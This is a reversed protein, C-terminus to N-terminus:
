PRAKRRSCAPRPRASGSRRPSRPPGASSRACATCAATWPRRPRRRAAPRRRGSSRRRPARARRGAPSARRRPPRRRRGPRRSRRSSTLDRSAAPGRARRALALALLLNAGAVGALALFAGATSTRRAVFSGLSVAFSGLGFSTSFMVGYLMGHHERPVLDAAISNVLPQTLYWGFGFAIAAIALPTDRLVAVALLVPLIGAVLTAFLRERRFRDALRGGWWQAGVGALLALSTVVAGLSDGGRAEGLWAARAKLEALAGADIRETLHRPLFYTAGRYVLGGALAAGLVLLIRRSAFVARLGALGGGGARGEGDLRLSAVPALLALCAAGALAFPARWDIAAALLAAAAPALAEGLNGGVGHVGIARGLAEPPTARSILSLGAPHYISAAAGLAVLGVAFLTFSPALAVLACSAACGGLCALLLARSGIRDALFGAPVAGLGFALYHATGVADVALVPVGYRNAIPRVLAPLLLMCAHILAHVLAGLRAVELGRASM